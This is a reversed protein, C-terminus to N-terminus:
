VSVLKKSTVLLKCDLLALTKPVIRAFTAFILPVIVDPLALKPLKTVALKALIEPLKNTALALIVSTKVAFVAFITVNNVDFVALIVANNVVAFALTVLVNIAFM